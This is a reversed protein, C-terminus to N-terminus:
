SRSRFHMSDTSNDYNNWDTQFSQEIRPLPRVHGSMPKLSQPPISSYIIVAEPLKADTWDPAKTSAIRRQSEPELWSRRVPLNIATRNGDNIFASQMQDAISEVHKVNLPRVNQTAWQLCQAQQSSNPNEAGNELNLTGFGIFHAKVLQQDHQQAAIRADAEGTLMDVGEDVVAKSQKRAKPVM